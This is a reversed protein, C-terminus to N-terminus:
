PTIMDIKIISALEKKKKKELLLRCVLNCPSQLESTHEESREELKFAADAGYREVAGEVGARTGVWLEREPDRPRVFLVFREKADPALVCVAEPEPFGTVYAFDSDQRYPYLIDATRPREPAAALLMVGGGMKEMIRARRAALLTLDDPSPGMSERILMRAARHCVAGIAAGAPVAEGRRPQLRGRHRLPRARGAGLGRRALRGRPRDPQRHPRPAPGGAPHAGRAGAPGPAGPAGAAGAPAERAGRPRRPRHDRLAHVLVEKRPESAAM